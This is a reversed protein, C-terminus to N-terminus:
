WRGFTPLFFNQRILKGGSNIYKVMQWILNGDFNINKVMQCILNGGFNDNKAKSKIIISSYTYQVRDQTAM